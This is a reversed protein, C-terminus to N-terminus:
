LPDIEAWAFYWRKDAPPSSVSITQVGPKASAPVFYTVVDHGEWYNRRASPDRFEVTLNGRHAGSASVAFQTANSGAAWSVGFSVLYSRGAVTNFTAAASGHQDAPRDAPNVMNRYTLAPGLFETTVGRPHWLVESPFRFSLHGRDRVIPAAATLRLTEFVGPIPTGPAVRSVLAKKAAPELSPPVAIELPRGVGTPTRAVSRGVDLGLGPESGPSKPKRPNEQALGLWGITLCATLALVLHHPLISKMTDTRM